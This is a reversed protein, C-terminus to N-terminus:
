KSRKYKLFRNGKSDSTFLRDLVLQNGSQVVYLSHLVGSNWHVIEIRGVQGNKLYHIEGFVENAVDFKNNGIKRLKHKRRTQFHMVFPFKTLKGLSTFVKEQVKTYRHEEKAWTDNMDSYRYEDMFPEFVIDKPEILLPKLTSDFTSAVELFNNVTLVDSIAKYQMAVPIPYRVSEEDEKVIHAKDIGYISTVEDPMEVLTIEVNKETPYVAQRKHKFESEIEIRTTEKEENRRPKKSLLNRLFDM